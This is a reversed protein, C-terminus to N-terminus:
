VTAHVPEKRNRKSIIEEYTGLYAEAVADWTYSQRIKNANLRGMTRRLDPNRVLRELAKALARPDRPPVLFGNMGDEMHETTGGIRTAVVPLGCAMAELLAMACSESHSPLAFIDANQYVYPLLQRPKFGGFTVQDQIGLRIALRQQSDSHSGSGQIRLEVTKDNLLQVAHLLDEIGKRPILRAVTLVQVKFPGKRKHNGNPMFNESEVANPIVSVDKEPCFERALDSLSRSNAVVADANKWIKKTLPSLVSHAAELFRNVSDYGPVDSGRLSIVSPIDGSGPTLMSLAGTPLGFFYHVIDYRNKKLLQRYVPQASFVFSWAGAFGCDQISKRRSRVRLIRVGDKNEVDPQGCLGSTIVDVRCGKRVLSKAIQCSAHGAGGGMPPFEYNLLLVRMKGNPNM